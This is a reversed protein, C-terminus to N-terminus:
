SAPVAPIAVTQEGEFSWWTVEDCRTDVILHAPIPGPQRGANLVLTGGIRDHWSGDPRFPAEHVHGTLVIDPAHQEILRNLVDDGYSRSGSWSTPSADPPAHYAWIWRGPRETAADRVLQRELEGRTVPGEWWTCASVLDDGVRVNTGDTAVRGDVAELWAAAKEGDDRRMTLDHNGSIAIVTTRDALRGLYATLLSVQAHLDARGAVDLHDGALVVADFDQAQAAIWDLQPLSYHLDSAVLYRV